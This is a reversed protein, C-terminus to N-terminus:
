AAGKLLGLTVLDSRMQNLLVGLGEVDVQMQKIRAVYAQAVTSSSFGFVVSTNAASMTATALATTATVTYTAQSASAPQTAPTTGYFGVKETSATGLCTGDPGNDGLYHIAM